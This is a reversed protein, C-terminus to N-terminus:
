LACISLRRNVSVFRVRMKKLYPLLGGYTPFVLSFMLGGCLFASPLIQVLVILVTICVHEGSPCQAVVTLVTSKKM